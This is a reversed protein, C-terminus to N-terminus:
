DLLALRFGIKMSKYKGTTDRSLRARSPSVIIEHAAAVEFQACFFRGNIAACEPELWEGFHASRVVGSEMPVPTRYRVTMMAFDDPHMCPPHEKYLTGESSVFEVLPEALALKVDEASIQEPILAAFTERYEKETPLRCQRRGKNNMWQAYDAAEEWTVTVPLDDDEEREGNAYLWPDIGKAKGIKGLEWLYKRFARITVLPTLDVGIATRLMQAPYRGRHTLYDRLVAISGPYTARTGGKAYFDEEAKHEDQERWGSYNFYSWARFVQDKDEETVTDSKDTVSVPLVEDRLNRFVFDYGGMGDSLFVLNKNYPIVNVWGFESLRLLHQFVELGRHLHIAEAHEAQYVRPLLPQSSSGGDCLQDGLFNSFCELAQVYSFAARDSHIRYYAPPRSHDFPGTVMGDILAEVHLDPQALALELLQWYDFGIGTFLRSPMKRETAFLRDAVQRYTLRIIGDPEMGLLSRHYRLGNNELFPVLSEDYDHKYADWRGSLGLAQVIDNLLTNSEPKEPGKLTSLIKDKRAQIMKPDLSEVGNVPYIVRVQKRGAIAFKAGQLWGAASSEPASIAPYIVTIGAHLAFRFQWPKSM